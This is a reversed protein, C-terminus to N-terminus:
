SVHKALSDFSVITIWGDRALRPFRLSVAEQLERVSSMGASAADRTSLSNARAYQVDTVTVPESDGSGTFILLGKEVDSRGRLFISHMHGSRICSLDTPSIQVQRAPFVVRAKSLRRVYEDGSEVRNEWTTTLRVVHDPKLAAAFAEPQSSAVILTAGLRRAMRQMRDAVVNATVLDLNACFEDAIWVNRGSSVLQALMARYQQGNSLEAYRKLYVFADSLGVVGLLHLASRVDAGDFLEIMARKSRISEFVGSNFNDPFTLSGEAGGMQRRSLLRLLTSKGSGSSGTILLVEGSDIRLSLGQLVKHVFQDPSIGFAQQVAHTKTTRRVSSRFSFSLNKLVIPSKIPALLYKPTVHTHSLGLTRVRGELFRQAEPILGVMYTPKPLSVIEHFLDFDRLVAKESLKALRSFLDSENWGQRKMLRAASEMRSVQKDVIGSADERVIDRRKVRGQNRLLYSMDEAVRKLNGETEGIYTMGAGDAFPVFRLMDASIEMFYPKLGAVQWRQKAFEAAHRILLQGLGLGRFEPNVVVRAVRAVLHINERLAPMDWREWGIGNARFPADFVVSRSKNMFLPMALEVYGIVSPYSPHFNHLILKATRGFLGRRRYHFDTLGDYAVYERNETIEKVVFDLALSGLSIREKAWYAPSIQAEGNRCSVWASNRSVRLLDGTSVSASRPLILAPHKSGLFARKLHGLWGIREVRIWGHAGPGEKHGVLRALQSDNPTSLADTSNGSQRQRQSSGATGHQLAVM